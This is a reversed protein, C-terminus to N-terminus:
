TYTPSQRTRANTTEHQRRSTSLSTSSTTRRWWSRMRSRWSWRRTLYLGTSPASRAASLRSRGRSRHRAKRTVGAVNSPQCRSAPGRLHRAHRRWRPGPRGAMFPSSTASTTRRPRSSRLQPQTRTWPLSRVSPMQTGAVDTRRTSRAVPQTRCRPAARGPALEEPGLGLADQGRVEEAHASHEELPEIHEKGGLVPGPPYLKKTGSLVWVAAEDSLSGPVQDAVQGLRAPRHLEEDPVLVRLERGAEVLDKRGLGDFDDLSGDTRRGGVGVRLTKHPGYAGLAQVPGQHEPPAVKFLDKAGVDVVVVVLTGM